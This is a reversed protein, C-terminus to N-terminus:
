TQWESSPSSCNEVNSINKFGLNLFPFYDGVLSQGEDDTGHTPEVELSHVSEYASASPQSASYTAKISIGSVIKSKYLAREEISLDKALNCRLGSRSLFFEPILNM